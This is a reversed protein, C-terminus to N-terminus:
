AASIQAFRTVPGTIFLKQEIRDVANAEAAMVKQEGATFPWAEYWDDAALADGYPKQTRKIAVGKTGEILALRAEDDAPVELNFVYRITLGVGTKRGPQEFDQTTALRSDVISGQDGTPAWGDSTLYASIDTVGAGTAEAVTIADQDAVTPAIVVKTNGDVPVSAPTSM